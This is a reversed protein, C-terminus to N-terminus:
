MLRQRWMAKKETHRECERGKRKCPSRDNSKLGVRLDFHDQRSVRLGVAAFVRNGALTMFALILVSVSRKTMVTSGVVVYLYCGFSLLIALLIVSLLLVKYFTRATWCNPSKVTVASPRTELVLQPVLIGCAACHLM